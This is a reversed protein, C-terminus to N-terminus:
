LVSVSSTMSQADMMSLDWSRYAVALGGLLTIDLFSTETTSIKGFRRRHMIGLGRRPLTRSSPASHPRSQRGPSHHGSSRNINNTPRLETSNNCPIPTRDSRKELMAVGDGPISPHAGRTSGRLCLRTITNQALLSHRRHPEPPPLLTRQQTLRHRPILQQSRQLITSHNDM